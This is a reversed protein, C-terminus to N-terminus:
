GALLYRLIHFLRRFVGLPLLVVYASYVASLAASLCNMYCMVVSPWIMDFGM